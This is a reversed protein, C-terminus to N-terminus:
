LCPPLPLTAELDRTFHSFINHFFQLVLAQHITNNQRTNHRSKATREGAAASNKKRKYAL